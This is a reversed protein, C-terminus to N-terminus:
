EALRVSNFFATRVKIESICLAPKLKGRPHSATRLGIEYTTLVDTTDDVILEIAAPM